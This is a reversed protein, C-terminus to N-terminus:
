RSASSAAQLKFLFPAGGACFHPTLPWAESFGTLPAQTRAGRSIVAPPESNDPAFKTDLRSTGPARTQRRLSSLPFSQDSGIPMIPLNTWRRMAERAEEPLDTFRL